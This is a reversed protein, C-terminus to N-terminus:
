HEDGGISVGRPMLRQPHPVALRRREYERAVRTVGLFMQVPVHKRLRDSIGVGHRVREGCESFYSVRVAGRQEIPMVGLLPMGDPVRRLWQPLVSAPTM